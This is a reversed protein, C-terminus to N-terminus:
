ARSQLLIPDNNKERNCHWAICNAETGCPSLPGAAGDAREACSAAMADCCFLANAIMMDIATLDRFISQQRFQAFLQLLFDHPLATVDSIM